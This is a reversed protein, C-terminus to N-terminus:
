FKGLPSGVRPKWGMTKRRANDLKGKLKGDGEVVGNEKDKGSEGEVAFLSQNLQKPPASMMGKAHIQAQYKSVLPTKQGALRLPGPTPAPTASTAPDWGILETPTSVGPNRVNMTTTPSNYTSSLETSEDNEADFLSGLSPRAKAIDEGDSTPPAYTRVPTNILDERMADTMFEASTTRRGTSRTLSGNANILASPEM